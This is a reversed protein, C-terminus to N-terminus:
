KLDLKNLEWWLAADRRLIKAPIGGIIVNEEEFTKNVVANAGISVGNAIKIAGFLKAGPGIYVNDGISPAENNGGSAGINVCVHIRCNAGIKAQKSVVITGYHPLSLGPGFVNPPISFGLKLSLTKYRYFYFAYVVKEFLSRRKNRYFEVNRLLIIFRWRPNTLYVKLKSAMSRNKIGMAQADQQIWHRLDAECKIM